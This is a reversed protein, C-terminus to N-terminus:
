LSLELSEVRDVDLFEGVDVIEFVLEIHIIKFIGLPSLLLLFHDVFELRLLYLRLLFFDEIVLSFIFVAHETVIVISHPLSLIPEALLLPLRSLM